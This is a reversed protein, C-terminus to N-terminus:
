LDVEQSKDWQAQLAMAEYEYGEEMLGDVIATFDEENAMKIAEAAKVRIPELYAERESQINPDSM